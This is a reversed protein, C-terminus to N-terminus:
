INFGYINFSANLKAISMYISPTEFGLQRSMDRTNRKM